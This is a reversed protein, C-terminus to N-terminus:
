FIGHIKFTRWPVLYALVKMKLLTTELFKHLQIIEQDMSHFHAGETRKELCSCYSCGFSPSFSFLFCFVSTRSNRTNQEALNFTLCLVPAFCIVQGAMSEQSVASKRDAQCWASSNWGTRCAPGALPVSPVRLLGYHVKTWCFIHSIWEPRWHEYGDMLEGITKWGRNLNHLRCSFMM